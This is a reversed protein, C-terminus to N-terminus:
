KSTRVYGIKFDLLARECLDDCEQNNQRPLWKIKWENRSLLSICKKRFRALHPKHCDWDGKLQKVVLKSDGRMLIKSGQKNSLYEIGKLLAYWEAINNTMEPYGLEPVVGYDKHITEKQNNKIVYAWTGIGGPNVSIGGDFCLIFDVPKTTTM